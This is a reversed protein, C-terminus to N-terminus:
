QTRRAWPPGMVWNHTGHTWRPAWKHSGCQQTRRPGRHPGYTPGMHQILGLWEHAIRRGLYKLRRPAIHPCFDGKLDKLSLAWGDMRRSPQTCHHVALTRHGRAGHERLPQRRAQRISTTCHLVVSWGFDSALDSPGAQTLASSVSELLVRVQGSGM